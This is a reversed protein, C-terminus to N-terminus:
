IAGSLELFSNDSFYACRLNSNISLPKENVNRKKDNGRLRSDMKERQVGAQAPTVTTAVLPDDISPEM